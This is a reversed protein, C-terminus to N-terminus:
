FPIDDDFPEDDVHQAPPSGGSQRARSAPASDGNGGRSDLMQMQQAVVETMYRTQGDQEWSRTQLKGEIYVLSGKHLYEAMIEALRGFACIRVWETKEQREGTQKDKWQESVAISFNAVATGAQTFRQEPDRGLRGILTVRNVGAM